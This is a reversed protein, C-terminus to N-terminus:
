HYNYYRLVNKVHDLDPGESKGDSLRGKFIGRMVDDQIKSIEVMLPDDVRVWLLLSIGPASEPTILWGFNGDMRQGTEKVEANPLAEQILGRYNFQDNTIEM